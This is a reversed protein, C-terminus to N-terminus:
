HLHQYSDTNNSDNITSIQPRNGAHYYDLRALLIRQEVDIKLADLKTNLEAIRARMVEAFGGTNSTYANLVAEAQEQMQPLLASDYLKKRDDLLKLQSATGLYMGRMKRIQLIRDTKISESRYTAARVQNDQRNETFLPVDFTVGVSFLDSRDSGAPTDDRYGYSANVGWQPKYSQEALEIGTESAEIQKDIVLVAPHKSLIELLAQESYHGTIVEFRENQTSNQISPLQGVPRMIFEYPLWEALRNKFQESRQRLVHLRDNLRTLELQARVVDQQQTRSSLSSYSSEAVDVLQEFLARDQEILEISREAQYSNLWNETVKLTVQAKRNKWMFPHQESTQKIQQQKLSLSDGRPFMQSVGLKLQTMNEQAFDFSDSPLNAMSVSITPDPLTGAALSEAEQSIHLKQSRTLWDDHSIAYEIAHELSLVQISHNEKAHGSSIVSLGLALGGLHNLTIRNKM